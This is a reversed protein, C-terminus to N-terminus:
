PTDKPRLADRVDTLHAIAADLHRRADALEGNDTAVQGALAAERVGAGLAIMVWTHQQATLLEMRERWTM